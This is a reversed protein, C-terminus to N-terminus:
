IVKSSMKECHDLFNELDGYVYKKVELWDTSSFLIHRIVTEDSYTAYSYIKTNIDFAINCYYGMGFGGDYLILKEKSTNFLIIYNPRITENYKSFVHNKTIILSHDETFNKLNLDAQVEPHLFQFNDHLLTSISTM